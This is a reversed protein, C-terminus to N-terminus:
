TSMFDTRTINKIARAVMFTQSRWQAKNDAADDEDDAKWHHMDKDNAEKFLQYSYYMM